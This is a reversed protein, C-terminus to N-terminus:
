FRAWGLDQLGQLDRHNAKLEMRRITNSFAAIEGEIKAIEGKEIEIAKELRGAATLSRLCGRVM